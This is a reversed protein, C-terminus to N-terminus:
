DTKGELKNIAEKLSPEIHKKLTYGSVKGQKRAIEELLLSRVSKLWDLEEFLEKNFSEVEYRKVLSRCVSDKDEFELSLLKEVFDTEKIHKLVPIRHYKQSVGVQYPSASLCIMDQFKWVNSQMVTLLEQGINPMNENEASEQAKKLYTCFENFEQFDRGQFSLGLYGGVINDGTSFSYSALKSQDRNKLCDIYLKSDELIEEKSKHLLGADSFNLFIGTIHKVVGPYDFDRNAYKLKVQPLLKEFDEDTLSYYHWLKVWDPTTEDEFYKSSELSKDLEQADLIGKDFFAQWWILSPFPTYFNIFTYKQFISRPSDTKEKTSAGSNSARYSIIQNSLSSIYEQELKNIDKSSLIGSKIEISLSNWM